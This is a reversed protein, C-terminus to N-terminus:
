FCNSEGGDVPMCVGNVFAANASCLFGVVNAIDEPLGMRGMPTHAMDIEPKGETRVNGPCVTNFTIGRRVFRKDRAFSGMMAIQAAKAAAFWPRGGAELAHISSITVVRGWGRDMMAPLAWSTFDAAAQVNKQWSEAWVLEPTQEVEYCGWRGSGGVNNVLIDVPGCDEWARHRAVPDILDYGVTRSPAFTQIGNAELAKAIAAGIGRTAGTVLARM